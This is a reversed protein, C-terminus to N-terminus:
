KQYVRVWDFRTEYVMELNPKTAWSGDGVSQTLIIYFPKNYPWQGRDGIMKKELRQYTGVPLGDLLWTISDTTWEVGYTHWQAVQVEEQFNARPYTRQGEVDTWYSHVTHYAVNEENIIEVIDIEGGIPNQPAPPQPMLWAATFNGPIPNTKMRVEILGCTLNWKDRTEVSGELMDPDTSTIKDKNRLARCVLQGDELYVQNKDARRWQGNALWYHPTYQWKTTDPVSGNKGNFEDHFVLHYGKPVMEEQAYVTNLICCFCVLILSRGKNM